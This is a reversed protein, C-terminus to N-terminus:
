GKASRAAAKIRPRGLVSSYISMLEGVMADLSCASLGNASGCVSLVRLGARGLSRVTWLGVQSDGVLALVRRGRPVSADLAEPERPRLLKM